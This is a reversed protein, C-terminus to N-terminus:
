GRCAASRLHCRRPHGRSSVARSSAARLPAM